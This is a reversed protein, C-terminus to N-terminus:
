RSKMVFSSIVLGLVIALSLITVILPLWTAPITDLVEGGMIYMTDSGSNNHYAGYTINYEADSFNDTNVTIIGRRTYNVQNGIDINADSTNLASDGFFSVSKIDFETGGTGSLITVQGNIYSIDKMSDEMKSFTLMGVAILMGTVVLMLVATYLDKMEM